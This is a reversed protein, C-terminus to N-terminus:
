AVGSADKSRRVVAAGRLAVACWITVLLLAAAALGAVELPEPRWGLSLRTGIVVTGLLAESPSYVPVKAAVFRLIAGLGLGIVAWTLLYPWLAGPAAPPLGYEEPGIRFMAGLWGLTVGAATVLAAWLAHRWLPGSRLREDEHEDQTDVSNPTEPLDM